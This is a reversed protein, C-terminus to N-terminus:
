KKELKAIRSKFELAIPSEPFKELFNKYVALAKDYEGRAEYSRGLGDNAAILDPQYRIAEQYRSIAGLDNGRSYYFDAVKCSMQAYRIRNLEMDPSGPAITIRLPNSYPDAGTYSYPEFGSQEFRLEIKREPQVGRIEFYGKDDSVATLLVSNSERDIVSIAVGVIATGAPDVVYGTIKPLQQKALEQSVEDRYQRVIPVFESNPFLRLFKDIEAEAREMEKKDRDPARMQKMLISIIKMQADPAKAREIEKENRDPAGMQNMLISIIKMQADPAKPNTTNPLQPKARQQSIEDLYQRVIPVFDSNPFLRLFKDIEAEAREMAKKDRDPMRMQNMLISIIKMQADPAKPNAPFFIIFSRFKDEAMLLNEAGGQNCFSNGMAFYADAELDDNPYTRILLRYLERAESFKCQKMLENGSEFLAKATPIKDAQPKVNGQRSGVPVAGKKGRTREVRVKELDPQAGPEVAAHDILENLPPRLSLHAQVREPKIAAPIIIACTCLASLFAIRTRSLAPSEGATLIRRIRVALTSGNIPSGGIAVLSGGRKVSRALELLLEAYNGPDHGRSIVAEDCAQEALAALKRRLGWALPHFWYICRNLTALWEVLPDRRRVHEWEHALVADLDERAWNKSHAPLLVRPRMLGVSLPIRCQPSHFAQDGRTAGRALRFALAMGLLLRALLALLGALYLM